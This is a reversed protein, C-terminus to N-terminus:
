NRRVNKKSKKSKSKKTKKSKSKKSKKSKRMKRSGGGQPENGSTEELVREEENAVANFANLLSSQKAGNNSNAARSNATKGAKVNTDSVNMVEDTPTALANSPRPTTFGPTIALPSFNPSANAPSNARAISANAPRRPPTEM